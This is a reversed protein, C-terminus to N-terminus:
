SAELDLESLATVAVDLHAAGREAYATARGLDGADRTLLAWALARTAEGPLEFVDVELDELPVSPDATAEVLEVMGDADRQWSGLDGAVLDRLAERVDGGATGGAERAITLVATLQDERDSGAGREPTQVPFVAPSADPEGILVEIAEDAATRAPALDEAGSAAGLRDRATVLLGVLTEVEAILTDRAPDPEESGLPNDAAEGPGATDDMPDACATLLLVLLAGVASVVRHSPPLGTTSAHVDAAGPASM